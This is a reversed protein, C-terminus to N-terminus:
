QRKPFFKNKLIYAELDSVHKLNYEIIFLNLGLRPIQVQVIKGQTFKKDGVIRM